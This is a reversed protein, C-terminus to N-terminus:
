QQKGGHQVHPTAHAIADRREPTVHNEGTDQAVSSSRLMSKM